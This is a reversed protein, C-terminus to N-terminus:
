QRSRGAVSAIKGSGRGGSLGAPIRRGTRSLSSDSRRAAACGLRTVKTGALHIKNDTAGGFSNDGPELWELGALSLWGDPKQLEATHKARWDLLDKQWANRDPSDPNKGRSDTGTTNLFFVLVAAAVLYRFDM